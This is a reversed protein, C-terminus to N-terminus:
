RGEAAEGLAKQWSDVEAIRKLGHDALLGRLRERSGGSYSALVVKRKARRLAGVHAGVAEYINVGQAREPAFDRAPEVGFDVVAASDPQHFPSTLHIRPQAVASQWEDESFYLLEPPLPRYAGPSAAMARDRNQYYDAIAEFRQEGAAVTGADRVVLTDPFLHD